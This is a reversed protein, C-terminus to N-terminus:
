KHTSIEINQKQKMQKITKQLDMLVLVINDLQNNFLKHHYPYIQKVIGGERKGIM